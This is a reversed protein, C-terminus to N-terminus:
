IWAGAESQGGGNTMHQRLALMIKIPASAEHADLRLLPLEIDLYRCTAHDLPLRPPDDTLRVALTLPTPGVTPVSVIGIQRVELKGALQPEPAAILRDSDRSLILRDDGVLMAGRDILRLCLDSKGSGSAGEILIGAGEISVASAHIRVPADPEPSTM